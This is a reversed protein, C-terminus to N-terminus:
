RSNVTRMPTHVYTGFSHIVLMHYRYCELSVLHLAMYMPIYTGVGGFNTYILKRLCRVLHSFSTYTNAMNLVRVLQHDRLQGICYVM